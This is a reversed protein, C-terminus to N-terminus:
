PSFRQVYRKLDLKKAASDSSMYRVTGFIPRVPGWARDYRGFCWFIGSYSNPDRGDLAYRDNLEIMTKLAEQPTSSWELIKKGWLMRMYNHIRGVRVLEIQAANWLPDYTKAQELVKKTYRVKRPDKAHAELTAKAWDPISAYTLYDDRHACFNYGLERWTVLQDLFAEADPPLGWWGQAKGTVEGVLEAPSWGRTVALFVEHASIHGFHLYPSLGSTAEADPENRLALYHELRERVFRRLTARAAIPGGRLASVTVTHDIPLRAPDIRAHNSPWRRTISAPLAFPKQPGLKKLPDKAPCDELFPPLVRQLYRRFHYARFFAKGPERMPLLGNGDVAELRVSTRAGAAAVMHPLMFAPYDDTVIAAAHRSLEALLGKGEGPAPEVYAHHLVGARALCEANDAMGDLVFAHLRDSAWPYGCRLAELVVLPKGLERAVQVAHELAFNYETRRAAIMWYLVFAGDSRVAHHNLRRIRKENM